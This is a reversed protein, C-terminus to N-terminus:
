KSEATVNAGTKQANSGPASPNYSYIVYSLALVALLALVSGLPTWSKTQTKLTTMKHGKRSMRGEKLMGERQLGEEIGTWVRPNPDRMPLLLKAQEAIYRLDQVLSACSACTQLHEEQDPDGGSEIIFPLVEQFQQCNM